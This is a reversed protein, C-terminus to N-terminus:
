CIPSKICPETVVQLDDAVYAVQRSSGYVSHVLLTSRIHYNGFLTSAVIVIVYASM